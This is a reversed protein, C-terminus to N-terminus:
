DLIINAIPGILAKINDLNTVRRTPGSGLTNFELIKSFYSGCPELINSEAGTIVDRGGINYSIESSPVM